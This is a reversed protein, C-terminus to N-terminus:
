INRISLAMKGNKGIIRGIQDSPVLVEILINDDENDLIKVSFSNDDEIIQSILYETLSVLNDM